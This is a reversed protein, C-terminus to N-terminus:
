SNNECFVKVVDSYSKKEEPKIERDGSIFILNRGVLISYLMSQVITKENDAVPQVLWVKNYGEIYCIDSIGLVFPLIIQYMAYKRNFFGYVCTTNKDYYSYKKHTLLM